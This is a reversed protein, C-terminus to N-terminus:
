EGDSDAKLSSEEGEPVVSGSEDGNAGVRLQRQTLGGGISGGGASRRYCEGFHIM